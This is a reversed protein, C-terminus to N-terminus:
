SRRSFLINSANRAQIGRIEAEINVGGGGRYIQIMDGEAETQRELSVQSQM